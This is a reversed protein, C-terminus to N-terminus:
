GKWWSMLSQILATPCWIHLCICPTEYYLPWLLKDAWRQGWHQSVDQIVYLIYVIHFYIKSSVSECIYNLFIIKAMHLFIWYYLGLWNFITVIFRGESKIHIYIYNCMRIILIIYAGMEMTMQTGFMVNLQRAIQHLELHLHRDFFLQWYPSYFICSRFFFWKKNLIIQLQIEIM